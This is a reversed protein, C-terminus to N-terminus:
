PTIEKVSAAGAAGGAGRGGGGGLDRLLATLALLDEMRFLARGAAVVVFPDRMALSTWARPMSRLHGEAGRFFVRDKDWAKGEAILEFHQGNLPHHPHVVRFTGSSVGDDPASSL